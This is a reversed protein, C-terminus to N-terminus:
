SRRIPRSRARSASASGSAAPSSTRIGTPTSPRSAAGQRAALAGERAARSEVPTTHVKLRSRSSRRRRDHASQALLVSGPVGDPHRLSLPAHAARGLSALDVVGDPRHYLIRGAVEVRYNMARLINVIARGVTTKGCGSEGVLGLTEGRKLTSRCATSPASRAKKRPAPHRRLGPLPRAPGPSRSHRRRSTRWTLRPTFTVAYGTARAAEILPPELDPCPEFREPCRTAFKCGPPLDLIDPVAGPITTLREAQRATSARCRRRAARAHVSAAPQPLARSGARGGSDQRRVHRGRPRLNRRRGGPQPHHAPDRRGRARAKMELMLDLIQAQITVDLATTPEDAILLAPNLALAMAIMVRQRMGGSLQHPYQDMRTAAIPFASRAHADRHRARAGSGTRRRARHALIVETVQMGITFVPNLSTMPEQFIM